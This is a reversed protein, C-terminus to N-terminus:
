WLRVTLLIAAVTIAMGIAITWDLLSNRVIPLDFVNSMDAM